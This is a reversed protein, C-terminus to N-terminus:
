ESVETSGEVLAPKAYGNAVDLSAAQGERYKRLEQRVAVVAVALEDKHAKADADDPNEHVADLAAEYEENLKALRLENEAKWVAAEDAM